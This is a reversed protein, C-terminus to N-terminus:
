SFTVGIETNPPIVSDEPIEVHGYIFTNPYITVDRGITVDAGIFTLQPALITVGEEMWHRNIRQQMVAIAESLQVRSNVGMIETADPTIWADVHGGAERIITLTDPLYYEGQANDNTLQDLSDYLAASDFLYMGSNVEKTQREQETADKHEVNKVFEGAADRIIRGYGTPDQLCTSLMTVANKQELHRKVLQKLTDAKILPTDGCLILTMGERGIFERACRVAHGTGLQEKQEVYSVGDGVVQKVEEAGSGVILCIEEAGAERAAAIAYEVMTKDMIKHIVKPTKSKMRTGKGAALIVAKLQKM